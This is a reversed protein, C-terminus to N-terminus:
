EPITIPITDIEASHTVKVDRKAINHGSHFDLITDFTRTKMDDGDCTHTMNRSPTKPMKRMFTRPRPKAEVSPKPMPFHTQLDFTGDNERVSTEAEDNLM